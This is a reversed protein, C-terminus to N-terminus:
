IGFNFFFQALTILIFAVKYQKCGKFLDNFSSVLNVFGINSSKERPIGKKLFFTFIWGLTMVVVCFVIMYLFGINDLFSFALASLSLALMFSAEMLVVRFSLDDNQTTLSLYYSSLSKFSTAMGM